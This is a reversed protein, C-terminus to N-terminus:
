KALSERGIKRLIRIWKQKKKRSKTHKMVRLGQSVLAYAIAVIISAWSVYDMISLIVGIHGRQDKIINSTLAHLVITVLAFQTILFCIQDSSRFYLGLSACLLTFFIVWVLAVM